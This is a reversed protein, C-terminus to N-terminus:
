STLAEASPQPTPSPSADPTTSGTRRTTFKREFEAFEVTPHPEFPVNFPKLFNGFLFRDGCLHVPIVLFAWQFGALAAWIGVVLAQTLFSHMTNYLIYYVRPIEKTKSRAFAIAGPAYGIVDIYLFLIIAAVWNIERIHMIFLATSVALVVGYEARM